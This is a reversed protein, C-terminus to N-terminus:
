SNGFVEESLRRVDQVTLAAKPSPAIESFNPEDLELHAKEAAFLGALLALQLTKGKMQHRPIWAAANRSEGDDFDSSIWLVDFKGCRSPGVRYEAKESAGPGHDIWAAFLLRTRAPALDVGDQSDAYTSIKAKKM